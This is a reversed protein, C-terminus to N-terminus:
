LCLSLLQKSDYFIFNRNWRTTAGKCSLRRRRRRRLRERRERGMQVVREENILQGDVVDKNVDFRSNAADVDQDLFGGAM